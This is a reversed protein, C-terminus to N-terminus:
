KVQYKKVNSDSGYFNKGKTRIFTRVKFRYTKGKKLGKVVANTKSSTTVKRYDGKGTKMYIDYRAGNVKSYSLKVSGSGNKKITSLRAASPRTAASAGTSYAGRGGKNVAAVKVTYKTGASLGKLTISTKKTTEFDKWKKNSKYVYVKYSDAGKVKNWSLTLTTKTTKSVKTGTVKAPKKVIQVKITCEATKKGDKTTVTIRTSGNRVATVKGKADVTAIKKNKSKWTVSKDSANEPLVTAKLKVSAGKASLVVSKQALKVGTVKVVPDPIRVTVKCAATKGGDETTVIIEATGNAVAKVLGNQDVTVARTNTSKWTVRRDAADAPAVQARFQATEGARTFSVATKDLSVGTVKIVPAPIQTLGAAAKELEAYATDVQEQAAEGDNLVAEAQNMANVFATWSDKTYKSQDKGANADFLNKLATKNVEPVPDKIVLGDIASQLADKAQDVQEQVAEQDDLVRKAEDMADAFVIWTEPTYRGEERSTNAEYLLRLAEKIDEESGAEKLQAIADRLTQLAQDVDEQTATENDLVGKAAKMAGDFVAYSDPTYDEPAKDANQDYLAQLESKDAPVPIEAPVLGKIATELAAKAADVADQDATESDLIDKAAKMALDFTNWSEQTYDEAKKGTNNDYLGQLETKDVPQPEAATLGEAAAELAEKAADVAAQDATESDLIEKAAKMALDFAAWSETTYEEANKGTNADYLSQLASKDVVPAKTEKFSVALTHNENIDTFTYQNDSVETVAGDALVQDVEYGADPTFFITKSSLGFVTVDGEQSAFGHEGATVDIKYEEETTYYVEKVTYTKSTRRAGFGFKGPTQAYALTKTGLNEGDVWLTIDYNTTGNKTFTVKLEHEENPTLPTSQNFDGWGPNNGSKDYFWAARPSAAQADVEYGIRIFGGDGTKIDFLNQDNLDDIAFRTYFTGETIEPANSDIAMPFNSDSGKKLKIKVGDEEVVSSEILNGAYDATDEVNYDQHYTVKEEEEGSGGDGTFTVELTHDDRIYAFTYANDVVKETVDEGDVLVKTLSEGEEPTFFLTKDAEEFATVEGTQSVSGKGSSTVQIVHKPANTFYFEKVTFTRAMNRTSFGARGAAGDHYINGSKGLSVGNIVPELTCTNAGTMVLNVQLEYETNVSVGFGKFYGYTKGDEWFWNSSGDIGVVIENGSTLKIVFRTQDSLNNVSFRTYYTGEKLPTSDQDTVHVKGGGSLSLKLAQNEVTATGGSYNAETDIEYDRHYNTYKAAIVSNKFVTVAEELALYSEKYSDATSDPNEATAQAALIGKHFAEKAEKPYQGRMDGTVAEDHLVVADAIFATLLEKSVEDPIFVKKVPLSTAHGAANTLAIETYVPTKEQSLAKFRASLIEGAEMFGDAKKISFVSTVVANEPDTLDPESTSVHVLSATNLDTKSEVYEANRSDYTMKVTMTKYRKYINQAGINLNYDHETGEVHNTAVNVSANGRVETGYVGLETMSIGWSDNKEEGTIRIYRAVESDLTTVNLGPLAANVSAAATFDVGDESIEVRYKTAYAGPTWDVAVNNIMYNKGLDVQYWQEGDDQASWRTSQNDDIAKVATNTGKESSASVTKGVALNDGEIGAYPEAVIANVMASTGEKGTFHIDILGNQSETYATIDVAKEKGGAAEKINFNEKVTKGNITVDFIHEEETVENFYLKVRYNGPQAKFKYGFDEGSRASKLVTGMGADPDPLSAGTETKTNEGYYGSGGAPFLSDAYLGDFAEGGCNLRMNVDSMANRELSIGNLIAETLDGDGNYAGVLRIDIIGDVPYVSGIEKVASAGTVSYVEYPEGNVLIDFTRDKVNELEAFNLKVNYEGQKAFIKYGFESGTLATNYVEEAGAITGSVQKAEGYYGSQGKEKEFAQDPSFGEVEGGGTNFSSSHEELKLYWQQAATDAAAEATVKGDALSLYQDGAHIRFLGNHLDETQWVTQETESLAFEDKVLALYQYSNAESDWIRIKVGDNTGVLKFGQNNDESKNLVLESGSIELYSMQGTNMVRYVANKEITFDRSSEATTEHIGIDPVGNYLPNGYFDKTANRDSTYDWQGANSQKTQPVVNVYTGAGIAASSDKVQYAELTSWINDKNGNARDAGGGPNVFEPDGHIAGAIENESYTGSANYVLNGAVGAKSWDVNGWEGNSKTSTNYFINNYFNWNSAVSNPSGLSWKWNDGNYYFVNNYVYSPTSSGAAIHRWVMGDNQSLNYRVVDTDNGGMLLMFGMPTDHSYNYEFITGASLYDSDYSCGDQNYSPGGYSENYRFVTDFANWSWIGANAGPNARMTHNHLLNNEVIAGKTECVLIGDGGIDSVDNNLVKYNRQAQDKYRINNSRSGDNAGNNDADNNPDYDSSNPDNHKFNDLDSIRIGKIGTRDCKEIRNNQITVGDFYPYVGAKSSFIVEIGIGGDVKNVGRNENGDVDHVYCGDIVVGKYSRDELGKYTDAAREDVTVHIGLRRPLEDDKNSAGSQWNVTFDDDNTVEIGTVTTYEMNEILIAEKHGDYKPTGDENTGGSKRFGGANIVPMNGEGYSSILIPREETGKGKPYLRQNDFISGKKLLISDGPKLEVGNVKDLTQFAKGPSTGDNEDSGAESDVYYVTGDAVPAYEKVVAQYGHQEQTGAQAAGEAGTETVAEAASETEAAQAMAPLGSVTMTCALLVSMARATWQKKLRM